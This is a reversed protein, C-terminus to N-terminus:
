ASIPATSFGGVADTDSEFVDFATILRTLVLLSYIRPPLIALHIDGGARQVALKVGILASLGTTDIFSVEKFNLVIRSHGQFLLSNVKDKLLHEGDSCVLRGELELCVVSGDNRQRIKM